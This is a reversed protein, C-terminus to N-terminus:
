FDGVSEGGRITLLARITNISVSNLLRRTSGEALLIHPGSLHSSSIGQGAKPNITPNMQLVHLDRPEMWHIGSNATEAVLLTENMADSADTMCRSDIGPWFTDPGIVAVYNTMLSEGDRDSSEVPCTFLHAYREALRSNNPGDWPENLRYDITPHGPVGDFFPLILARWSHIPRGDDDMVVAPPLCGYRDHYNHLAIGIRKLNNRCAYHRNAIQHSRWSRVGDWLFLAFLLVPIGSLLCGVTRRWGREPTDFSNPIQQTPGM